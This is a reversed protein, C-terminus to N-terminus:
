PFMVSAEAPGPPGREVPAAHRQEVATEEGSGRGVGSLDREGDGDGSVTVGGTGAPNGGVNPAPRARLHNVLKAPADYAATRARGWGRALM